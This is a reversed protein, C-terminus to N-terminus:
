YLNREFMVKEPAILKAKYGVAMWSSAYNHTHTNAWYSQPQNYATPPLSFGLIDEIEEYNLTIKPDWKQYLFETLAKYKESIKETPFKPRSLPTSQNGTVNSLQSELAAVKQELTDIRNLIKVIDSPELQM